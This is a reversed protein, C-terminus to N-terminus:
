NWKPFMYYYPTNFYLWPKVVRNYLLNGMKHFASSYRKDDENDLRLKVGMVTQRNQIIFPSGSKIRLHLGRRAATSAGLNQFLLYPSQDTYLIRPLGRNGMEFNLPQLQWEPFNLKPIFNKRQLIMM